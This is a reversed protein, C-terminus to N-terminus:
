PCRRKDNSGWHQLNHLPATRLNRKSCHTPGGNVPPMSLETNRTSAISTGPPVSAITRPPRSRNGSSGSANYPTSRM